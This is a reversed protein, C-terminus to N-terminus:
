EARAWNPMLPANQVRSGSSLDLIMRSLAADDHEGRVRRGEILVVLEDGVPVSWTRDPAMAGMRVLPLGAKRALRITSDSLQLMKM